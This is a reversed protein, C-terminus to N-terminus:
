AELGTLVELMYGMEDLTKCIVKHRETGIFHLSTTARENLSPLVKKPIVFPLGLRCSGGGMGM